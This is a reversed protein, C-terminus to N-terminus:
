EIVIRGEFRDVSRIVMKVEFTSPNVILQDVDVRNNTNDYITVTPHQVLKHASKPITITATNPNVQTDVTWDTTANFTKIYKKQGFVLWDTGNYLEGTNTDTNYRILKKTTDREATTGGPLVMGHVSDFTVIYKRDNVVHAVPKKDSTDTSEILYAYLTKNHPLAASSARNGTYVFGAGSDAAAFKQRLIIDSFGDAAEFTMDFITHNNSGTSEMLITTSRSPPAKFRGAYIPSTSFTRINDTVIEIERHQTINMYTTPESKWGIAKGTHLWLTQSTEIGDARVTAINDSNAVIGLEGDAVKYLGTTRDSIFTLSPHTEVGDALSFISKVFWGNTDYAFQKSKVETGSQYPTFGVQTGSENRMHLSFAGVKYDSAVIVEDAVIKKSVSAGSDDVKFVVQNNTDKVVLVDSNAAKSKIAVVQNGSVQTHVGLTGGAFVSGESNIEYILNSGKKISMFKYNSGIINSTNIDIAKGNSNANTTAQIEMLTSSDYESSHLSVGKKNNEKNIYVTAAPDFTPHTNTGRGDVYLHKRIYTSGDGRVAFAPTTNSTFQTHYYLESPARSTKSTINTGTFTTSTQVGSITGRTGDGSGVTLRNTNNVASGIGILQHDDIDIAPLSNTSITLKNPTLMTMGTGRAGDFAYANNTLTASSSGVFQSAGSMKVDFGQDPAWYSDAGLEYFRWSADNLSSGRNIAIGSSGNVRQAGTNLKITHNSYETNVTSLSRTAGKVELDGFIVMKYAAANSSRPGTDTGKPVVAVADKYEKDGEDFISFLLNGNTRIDHASM